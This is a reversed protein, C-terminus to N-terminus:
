RWFRGYLWLAFMVAASLFLAAAFWGPTAAHQPENDTPQPVVDCRDHESLNDQAKALERKSRDLEHQLRKANAESEELERQLADARHYAAEADDRYM